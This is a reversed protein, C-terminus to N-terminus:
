LLPGFVQKGGEVLFDILFYLGVVLVLGAGAIRALRFRGHRVPLTLEFVAAALVVFCILVILAMRPWGPVISALVPIGLLWGALAFGCIVAMAFLGARSFYKLTAMRKIM